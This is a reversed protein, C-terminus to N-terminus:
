EHNKKESNDVITLFLDIPALAWCLIVVAILDLGPSIGLAGPMTRDQYKRSLQWICYAFCVMYYYWFLM